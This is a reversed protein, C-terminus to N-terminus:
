ESQTELDSCVSRISRDIPAGPAQTPGADHIGLEPDIGLPVDAPNQQHLHQGEVVLAGDARQAIELGSDISAYLLCSARESGSSRPRRSGRFTTCLGTSGECRTSSATPCAGSCGM